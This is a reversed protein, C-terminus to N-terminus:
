FYKPLDEVCIRILLWFMTMSSYSSYPVYNCSFTRKKYINTYFYRNEWIVMVDLFALKNDIAKEMTIELNANIGNLKLLFEVRDKDDAFIAFTDDVYRKYYIPSIDKILQQWNFDVFINSLISGLPSEMSIGDVQKYM